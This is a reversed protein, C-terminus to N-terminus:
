LILKERRKKRYWIISALMLGGGIVSFILSSIGGTLPFEEKKNVIKLINLLDTQGNKAYLQSQGYSITKDTQNISIIYTEDSIRYGIPAIIETLKYDGSPWDSPVEIKIGQEEGSSSTFSEYASQLDMELTVIKRDASIDTIKYKRDTPNDTDVKLGAPFTKNTPATLTFGLIGKEISHDTNQDDKWVKDIYFKMKTIPEKEDGVLLTPNYQLIPVQYTEENELAQIESYDGIYAYNQPDPEDTIWHYDIFSTNEKNVVTADLVVLFAWDGTAGGFRTAPINLQYDVPVEGKGPITDVAGKILSIPSSPHNDSGSSLNVEEMQTEPQAVYKETSRNDMFNNLYDRLVPDVDFLRFSNIKLNQGYVDFSTNRDTYEGNSNAKSKLMIYVQVSGTQPDKVDVYYKFNMYSPYGPHEIYTVNSKYPEIYTKRTTQEYKIEQDNSVLSNTDRTWTVSGDENITVTSTASNLKYNDPARTEKLTYTGPDLNYFSALGMGDSTAKYTKTPDVTSTLEFEAGSLPKNNDEKDVKKITLKYNKKNVYTFEFDTSEVKSVDGYPPPLQLRLSREKKNLVDLNSPDALTPNGALPTPKLFNYPRRLEVEM